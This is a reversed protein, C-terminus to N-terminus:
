NQRKRLPKATPITPDAVRPLPAPLVVETPSAEGLLVQRLWSVLTAPLDTVTKILDTGHLSGTCIIIENEDRAQPALRRGNQLRKASELDVTNQISAVMRLPLPRLKEIVDDTRIDQYNMGPSLLILGGLDERELAYRMALNGGLGSGILVIKRKNVTPQNALWDAAANIDLLMNQFDRKHFNRHDLLEAGKATLQRISEGHGRFDIALASFGNQQILAALKGWEDRSEGYDHLLLVAPSCNTLLNPYYTAVIGVDDATQLRVTRTNAAFAAPLILAASLVLFLHKMLPESSLVRSTTAISNEQLLNGQM